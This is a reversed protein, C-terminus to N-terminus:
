TDYGLEFGQEKVHAMLRAIQRQMTAIQTDHASLHAAHEGQVAGLQDVHEGIEALGHQFDQQLQKVVATVERLAGIHGADAAERKVLSDQLGLVLRSQQDATTEQDIRWAQFDESFGAMRDALQGMAERITLHTEGVTRQVDGRLKADKRAKVEAMAARLDDADADNLEAAAILDEIQRDLEATM